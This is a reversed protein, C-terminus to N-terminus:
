RYRTDKRMLATLSWAIKSFNKVFRRYYGALGVFSHIETVSKPTPWESVSQIKLLGNQFLNSRQHILQSVRQLFSIVLFILKRWGSNASLSSPM